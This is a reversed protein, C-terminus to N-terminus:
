GPVLAGADGTNCGPKFDSDLVGCVDGSHGEGLHQLELCPKRPTLSTSCPGQSTKRWCHFLLTKGRGREKEGRDLGGQSGSVCVPPAPLARSHKTFCSSSSELCPFALTDVLLGM